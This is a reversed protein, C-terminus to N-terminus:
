GAPAGPPTDSPITAADTGTTATAADSPASDGGANTAIVRYSYTTGAALSADSFTTEDQATTGAVTWTTGDISREIRYGTETGVDTWSLDIQSSSVATATAVPPDAPEILTTVSAVDSISADSGDSTAIVRYYYNTGPALETDLQATVNRDLDAVFAWGAAGDPSREVRYGSEGGVDTWRVDVVSSSVVWATVTTAAIPVAGPDTITSGGAGEPASSVSSGGGPADHPGNTVSPAGRAAAVASRADTLTGADAARDTPEQARFGLGQTVTTFVSAVVERARPSASASGAFALAAVLTVGVLKRGAPARAPRAMVSSRRRETLTTGVAVPRPPALDWLIELEHIDRRRRRRDIVAVMVAGMLLAVNLAVIGGLVVLVVKAM